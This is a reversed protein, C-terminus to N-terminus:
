AYVPFRSCVESVRARVSAIVAEDGRSDLVECILTAVLRSDIVKTDDANCFPCFM